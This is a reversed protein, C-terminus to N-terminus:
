TADLSEERGPPPRPAMESLSRGSAPSPGRSPGPASSFGEEADARSRLMRMPPVPLGHELAHEHFRLKGM